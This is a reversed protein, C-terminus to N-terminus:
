RSADGLGYAMGVAIAGGVIIGLSFMFAPSRYWSDKKELKNRLFETEKVRLKESQIFNETYKKLLLETVELEREALDLSTELKFIKLELKPVIDYKLSKYETLDQLMLTLKSEEIWAGSKGDVEMPVKDVHQALATSSFVLVIIIALYKM